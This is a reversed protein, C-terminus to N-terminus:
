AALCSAAWAGFLPDALVTRTAPPDARDAAELQAYWLKTQAPAAKVIARLLLLHKSLQARRLEAVTATAPRGAALAAFAADTLVHRHM